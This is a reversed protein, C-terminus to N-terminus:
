PLHIVLLREELWSITGQEGDRGAMRLVVGLPAHSLHVHISEDDVELEGPLHVFQQVLYSPSSEAFGRLGAAFRRLIVLAMKGGPLAGFHDTAQEASETLEDADIWHALDPWVVPANRAQEEEGRPVGALWSIASDRQASPQRAEGLIALLVQYRASADLWEHVGLDRITPMLLALGASSTVLRLPRQERTTAEDTTVVTPPIVAATLQAVYERGAPTALAERLWHGAPVLEDDLGALFANLATPVDIERRALAAWLPPSPRQQWLQHLRVLHHIIGAVAPKGALRPQALAVTLYLRLLNRPWGTTTAELAVGTGMAQLVALLLDTPPQWTIDPPEFGLGQQWILAVDAPSLAQLLRELQGGRRLRDAVPGLLEPRPALLQAAVQGVPLGRLPSFEEYMWRSWATGDLLDGLFAALFHAHDDYRVVDGTSGYLLARSITQLLLRGWKHAMEGKTTSLLDVWLDLQLHRIRYVCGEDSGLPHLRGSLVEPLRAAVGDLRKQVAMRDPAGQPLYYNAELNAITLM